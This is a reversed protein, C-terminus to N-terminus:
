LCILGRQLVNPRKFVSNSVSTLKTKACAIVENRKMKRKIVVKIM